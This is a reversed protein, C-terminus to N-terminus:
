NQKETFESPLKGFHRRFAKSFYSLNNFGVRYAVESVTGSDNTLLKAARQLRLTRIFANTSLNTLAQIKRNLHMRSIGIERALDETSFDPEEMHDEFISLLRQLLQEDMSSAAIDEPNLDMLLSFKERLKKRQEILNKSRILLERAEFPKTVYDDAGFELGEIKSDLDAKATLLIVPIHSIREDTKIKKCLEFGDMEPMMVDSIVLDPYKDITKKLGEKGNEATLIRYENNMFSSIYATVDPNDEVILLLPASKNTDSKIEKLVSYDESKEIEKSLHQLSVDGKIGRRLPFGTEGKTKQPIEDEGRVLPPDLPTIKEIIEDEKFSEKGIPLLVTFTTFAVERKSFPSHPPQSAEENDEIRESKVGIEGRCVEVLEKTLALGIGTGESDKIYTSDVQYFRDFIKDLQAPSIGPGTNTVSLQIVRGMRGKALSPTFSGGRLLPPVPPTIHGFKQKGKNQGLNDDRVQHPIWPRSQGPSWGHKLTDKQDEGSNVGASSALSSCGQDPIWRVNQIGAQAPIVSDIGVTIEGGEPTFKFANSLLNTVIKELKDRDIYGVMANERPLFKLTVKKSDALPAFSLVMGKLYKVIDTESAKIKVEGSELKSLDLIQNILILLRESNRLMMKYTEQVNGAFEGRLLQKLPGKILTLPTRFEHSINAFFRSKLQDVERLKEAEFRQMALAQKIKLRNTQFRWIGVLSVGFLFAYLTYALKTEWWPPLILIRMSTGKENWVGDHNSGKVRFIYEGPDLNTYTVEHRNGTFIWDKDFGEMWHAYQNRLPNVYSLAAYGISFVNETHTLTIQKKCHLASDPNIAKNFKKFGTIVVEPIFPDDRISDPYFASIGAPGGFFLEGTKSKFHAKNFANDQLGDSKYYKKVTKDSPNYKGLGNNTSFWINGRNDEAIRQIGRTLSDNVSEGTNLKKITFKGSKKNFTYLSNDAAIWLLSDNKESEIIDQINGANVRDKRGEREIFYHTIKNTTKDLKNLGGGTGIWLIGDKDEYIKTVFGSSLTNADHSDHLYEEVKGSEPDYNFLGDVSMRRGWFVGTQDVLIEWWSNRIGPFINPSFKGSTFDFTYLGQSAGVWLRNNPDSTIINIQNETAQFTKRDNIKFSTLQSTERDYKYLGSQAIWINGDNDKHISGSVPIPKPFQREEYGVKLVGNNFTGYWEVGAQDRYFVNFAYDHFYSDIYKASEQDFINCGEGGVLIRGSRDQAIFRFSDYKVGHKNQPDPLFNAFNDENTNYRSLCAATPCFWLQKKKDVFLCKTWDKLVGNPMTEDYCNFLITDIKDSDYLSKFSLPLTHNFLGRTTALWLKDEHIIIDNIKLPRDSADGKSSFLIRKFKSRSKDFTYLLHDDYSMYLYREDGYIKTIYAQKSSDSPVHPFRTFNDTVPNYKHLQGAAIWLTGESDKYIDAIVNTILANNDLIDQKYLTINFGDYRCLGNETAFWMFGRNDQIIGRIYNTPLGQEVSIVEYNPETDKELDTVGPQSHLVSCHFCFSIVSLIFAHKVGSVM